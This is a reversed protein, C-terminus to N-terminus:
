DLLPIGELDVSTGRKHSEPPLLPVATGSVASRWYAAEDSLPPPSPLLRRLPEGYKDAAKALDTLQQRLAAPWPRPMARALVATLAAGVDHIAVVQDTTRTGPEALWGSLVKGLEAVVVAPELSSFLSVVRWAEHPIPVPFYDPRSRSSGRKGWIGSFMGRAAAPSVQSIAALFSAPSQRALEYADHAEAVVAARRRPLYIEEGMDTRVRLFFTPDKGYPHMSVVTGRLQVGGYRADEFAVRGIGAPPPARVPLPVPRQFLRRDGEQNLAILEDLTFRRPEEGAGPGGFLGPYVDRARLHRHAFSNMAGRAVPSGYTRLVVDLYEAFSLIGTNELDAGYDESVVVNLDPTPLFVAINVTMEDSAFFDFPLMGGERGNALRLGHGEYPGDLVDMACPWRSPGKVMEHISPIRISGGYGLEGPERLGSPDRMTWSLTLHTTWEFFIRVDSPVPRGLLEALRSIQPDTPTAAEAALVEVHPHASLDRVLQQWTREYEEVSTPM